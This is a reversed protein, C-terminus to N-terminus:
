ARGNRSETLELIVRRQEENAPFLLFDDVTLLPIKLLFKLYAIEKHTAEADAYESFFKPLRLYHVRVLPLATSNPVASKQPPICGTCPSYKIAPFLQLPSPCM